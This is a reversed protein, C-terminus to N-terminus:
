QQSDERLVALTEITSEILQMCEVYNLNVTQLMKSLIITISMVKGVCALSILFSSNKISNLHSLAQARSKFNFHNDSIIRELGLVISSINSCFRIIADHREVFRTSCYSIFQADFVNRRGSSDNIYNITASVIDFMHRIETLKSSDNLVLNLRHSACHLYIALPAHKMIRTAVGSIHGSM